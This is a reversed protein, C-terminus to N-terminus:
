GLTFVREPVITVIMRVDGPKLYPYEDLDMYRKALKNIHEVAGEESISEASGRVTIYRYPNEPDQIDLTVMPNRRLNREKVRGKTTNVLIRGDVYDVWMPTLHPSGDVMVTAMHAFAKSTFLPLFDDPITAIDM